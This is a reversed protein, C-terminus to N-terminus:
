NTVGKAIGVISELAAKLEDRERRADVLAVRTAILAAACSAHDDPVPGEVKVASAM